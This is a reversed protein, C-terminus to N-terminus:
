KTGFALLYTVVRRLDDMTRALLLKAEDTDLTPTPLGILNNISGAFRRIKPMDPELAERRMREREALEIEWAQRQKEADAAAIADAEAKERSAIADRRDQEIKESAARRAEFEHREAALQDRAAQAAEDAKRREQALTARESALRESEARNAATEAERKADEEARAARVIAEEAERKVRAAEDEILKVGAKYPAEIADIEAKIEDRRTLMAKQFERSNKMGADYNRTLEGRAKRAMGIIVKAADINDRTVIGALKLEIERNRIVAPPMLREAFFNTALAVATMETQPPPPLWQAEAADIDEDITPM